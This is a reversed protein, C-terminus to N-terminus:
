FTTSECPAIDFILSVFDKDQCSFAGVRILHVRIQFHVRQMICILQKYADSKEKLFKQLSDDVIM